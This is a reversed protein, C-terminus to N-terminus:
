VVARLCFLLFHVFYLSVTSFLTTSQWLEQMWTSPLRFVLVFLAKAMPREFGCRNKSTVGTIPKLATEYKVSL